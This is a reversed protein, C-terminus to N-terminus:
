ANSGNVTVVRGSRASQEAADVVAAVQLGDHVNPSAATGDRVARVFAHLAAPFSPDNLPARLRELAYPLARLEGAARAATLGLAGRGTPPLTEVRLSRFRDITLKGGSGYIDIRDEDVASLSFLSQVMVGNSLTMQLLATDHESTVSTVEASVTAIEADALFRVLDIHHVALDLLVGGGAPRQRKWDPITRTATAFTTRLAVPPGIRGAAIADRAQRILRNRRYNFGMMAIPTTRASTHAAQATVAVRRADALSTALPKEIYVSRGREITAIAAEAHLAPPLAIVVADVDAMDLVDRYHSVARADRALQRAAALSSPEPDALAVVRAGSM